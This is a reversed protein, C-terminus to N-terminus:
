GASQFLTQAQRPFVEQEGSPEQKKNVHKIPYRFAEFWVYLRLLHSASLLLNGALLIGKTSHFHSIQRLSQGIAEGTFQLGLGVTIMLLVKDKKPSSILMLWLLLTLGVSGFSLDRTVETMWLVFRSPDGDWHILLSAFVSIVAVVALMLRVRGRNSTRHMAVEILSVVVAFLLFERVANSRYWYVSKASKSLSVVGAFLGADVLIKLLLFISYFYVFPYRKYVHRRLAAIVCVQLAVSVAFIVWQLLVM